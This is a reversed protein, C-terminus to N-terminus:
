NTLIEINNTLELESDVLLDGKEYILFVQAKYATIRIVDVKSVQSEVKKWHYNVFSYNEVIINKFNPSILNDLDIKGAITIKDGSMFDRFEVECFLKQTLSHM